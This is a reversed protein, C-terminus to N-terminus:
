KGGKFIVIMSPFPAGNKAGGFKLRGKIFRVEVREQPQQTKEDWIYDHFWRTDTRAPLLCVVIAGKKSEEKAKKIWRNISRGYPPNLYVREFLHWPTELSNAYLGIACKMNKPTCAADLKFNFERNLEDFLDQPTEWDSKESSFLSKHITM